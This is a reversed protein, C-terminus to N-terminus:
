SMLVIEALFGPSHQTYLHHVSHQEDTTQSYGSAQGLTVDSMHSIGNNSYPDIKQTTVTPLLRQQKGFEVVIGDGRYGGDRGYKKPTSSGKEMEEMKVEKKTLQISSLLISSSSSSM